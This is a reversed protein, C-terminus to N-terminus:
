AIHEDIEIKHRGTTTRLNKRVTDFATNGFWENFTEMVFTATADSSINYQFAINWAFNKLAIQTVSLRKRIRIKSCSLAQRNSVFYRVSESIQFIEAEDFGLRNFTSKTYKLVAELKESEEREKQSLFQQQEQQYEFHFLEMRKKMLDDSDSVQGGEKTQTSGPELLNQAVEIQYESLVGGLIYGVTSIGLYHLLRLLIYMGGLVLPLALQSICLTECVQISIVSALLITIVQIVLAFFVYRRHSM